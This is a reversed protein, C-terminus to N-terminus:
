KAGGFALLLYSKSLLTALAFFIKVVTFLATQAVLMLPWSTFAEM